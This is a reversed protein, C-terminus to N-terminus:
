GRRRKKDSLHDRLHLLGIIIWVGVALAAGPVLTPDLLVLEKITELMKEIEKRSKSRQNRSEEDEQNFFSSDRM